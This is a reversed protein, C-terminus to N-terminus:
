WSVRFSLNLCMNLRLCAKKVHLRLAYVQGVFIMCTILKRLTKVKFEWALLRLAQDEDCRTLTVKKYSENM